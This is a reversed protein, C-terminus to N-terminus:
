CSVDEQRTRSLAHYVLDHAIARWRGWAQRQDPTLSRLRQAVLPLGALTTEGICAVEVVDRPQPTQENDTLLHFSYTAFHMIFDDKRFCYTSLALFRQLTCDLGTEEAVERWLASQVSEGLGIGGTFLRFVGPPYHHKTHLLIRGNARSIVFLVEARRDHRRSQRTALMDHDMEMDFHRRIPMGYCACLEAM